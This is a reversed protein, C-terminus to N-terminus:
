HECVGGGGGVLKSLGSMLFLYAHASSPHESVWLAHVGGALALWFFFRRAALPDSRLTPVCYTSPFFSVFLCSLIIGFKTSVVKARAHVVLTRVCETRVLM